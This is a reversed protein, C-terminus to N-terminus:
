IVVQHHEQWTRDGQDDARACQHNFKKPNGDSKEHPPSIWPCLGDSITFSSRAKPVVQKVFDSMPRGSKAGEGELDPVTVTSFADAETVFATVVSIEHTDVSRRRFFDLINRIAVNILQPCNHATTPQTVLKWLEM